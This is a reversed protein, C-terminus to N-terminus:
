ALTPYSAMSTIGCPGHTQDIDKSIRIYGDEGWTDAWSNKIKWYNDGNDTGYGVTLVGHDLQTGQVTTMIGSKYLQWNQDADVAVSIPQQSVAAALADESDAIDTYTVALTGDVPTFDYNCVPVVGAGSTYPYSEETALGHAAIYQFANDMLGGNCGADIYVDCSVLQQESFVMSKQTKEYYAGEMGGTTSFAWCSGCQGQDKVASVKGTGSWDVSDHPKVGEFNNVMRSSEKRQAPKSLYLAEFEEFSLHSFANHGLEYSHNGANHTEILDSNSIFNDLQHSFESGEAFKLNFKAAHNIFQPPPPLPLTHM